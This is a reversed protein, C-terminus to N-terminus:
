FEEEGMYYEKGDPKMKKPIKGKRIDDHTVVNKSPDLYGRFDGATL